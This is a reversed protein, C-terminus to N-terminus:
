RSFLRRYDGAGCAAAWRRAMPEGLPTVGSEYHAVTRVTVDLAVAMQAPSLGAKLRASKLRAATTDALSM